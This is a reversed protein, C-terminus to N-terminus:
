NLVSLIDKIQQGGIRLSAQYQVASEAYQARETDMNVTNGDASPQIVSRYLLPTGTAADRQASPLHQASPTALPLATQRAQIANALASRFDIDRAQYGPTDANAINSAILEQRAEQIRLASQQFQLTKDLLTAM